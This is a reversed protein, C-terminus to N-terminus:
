FTRRISNNYLICRVKRNDDTSIIPISTENCRLKAEPCRPSFNCGQPLDYFSPVMGKIENLEVRGEKKFREGLVPVSKLL